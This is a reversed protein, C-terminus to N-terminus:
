LNRLEGQLARLPKHAARLNTIYREWEQPQQLFTVYIRKVTRVYGAATKYSERGRLHILRDIQSLYHKLYFESYKGACALIMQVLEEKSLAAIKTELSAAEQQQEAAKRVFQERHHAFALLVAVIHKCPYSEYPCTCTAAIGSKNSNIEVKYNGHNGSVKARLSEPEPQYDVEDVLGNEFYGYGRNFITPGAFKRIAADTLNKLRLM